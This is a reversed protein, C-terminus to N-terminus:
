KPGNGDFLDILGTGVFYAGSGYGAAKIALSAAGKVAAPLNSPMADMAFTHIYPTGVLLGAGVGIRVFANSM